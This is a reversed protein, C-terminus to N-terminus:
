DMTIGAEKIIVAWREEEDKVQKTAVESTSGVADMARSRMAEQFKASKGIKMLAESLRTSVEEPVGAPSAVLYWGFVDFDAVGSEELTPVDPLLPIRVNNAVAIPRVKGSEILSLAGGVTAFIADIRGGLLETFAQSEGKYPIHMIDMGTRSKVMEMVLHSTAANGASGYNLTGPQAKAAEILDNFTKYPKDPTTVLVLPFTSIISLPKLDRLTNYPLNKYLTTNVSALGQSLLGITYGDPKSRAVYDVGIVGGAGTRNDVIVSQGLEDSLDQALTRALIDSLGGAAYPTILRIPQEPYSAQAPIGASLGLVATAIAAISKTLKKM